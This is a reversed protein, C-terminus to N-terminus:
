IEDFLLETMGLAAPIILLVVISASQFLVWSLISLIFCVVIKVCADAKIKQKKLMVISSIFLILFIVFLLVLGVVVLFAVVGTMGGLLATLSGPLILYGSIYDGNEGSNTALNMGVMTLEGAYRVLFLSGIGACLSFMMYVGILITSILSGLPIKKNNKM